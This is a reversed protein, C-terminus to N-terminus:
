KCASKKCVEVCNPQEKETGRVDRGGVVYTVRFLNPVISGHLKGELNDPLYDGPVELSGGCFGLITQVGEALPAEEVCNGGGNGEGGSRSRADLGEAKRSVKRVDDVAHM